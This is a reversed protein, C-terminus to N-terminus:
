EISATYWQATEVLGEVATKRPVWGLEAEVTRIDVVLDESIRRFREHVGAARSAAALLREPFPFVAERRGMAERLVRVVEPTSLAEADAVSLRHVGRIGQSTSALIVDCLNDLFIMSRKNEISGIPLPLRSNAIRLLSRFNGRVGPGYVLPPRLAVLHKSTAAAWSMFRNEAELKTQGYPTTPAPETRGDIPIGRTAETVAKISSLYVVKQVPTRALGHMLADAVLVNDRYYDDYTEPGENVHHTRGILHVVCDVDEFINAWEDSSWPDDIPRSSEHQTRAKVSRRNVVGRVDWGADEASKTLATGIFGNAGTIGLRMM